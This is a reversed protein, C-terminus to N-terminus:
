AAKAGYRRMAALAKERTAAGTLAEPVDPFSVVFGDGDRAVRAPYSLMMQKQGALLSRKFEALKM